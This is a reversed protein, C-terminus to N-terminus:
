SSGTQKDIADQAAPILDQDHDTSVVTLLFHDASTIMTKLDTMVGSMDEIMTLIQHRGGGGGSGHSPRDMYVGSIIHTCERPSLTICVFEEVMWSWEMQGKWLRRQTIWERLIFLLLSEQNDMESIMFWM